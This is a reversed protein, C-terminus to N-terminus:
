IAQDPSVKNFKGATRRISVGGEKFHQFISPHDQALTQQSALYYFFHRAHNYNDYAHLTQVMELYSNWFVAMPHTEPNSLDGEFESYCEFLERFQDMGLTSFPYPLNPM